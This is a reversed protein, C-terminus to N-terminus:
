LGFDFGSVGDAIPTKGGNVDGLYLNDDEFALFRETDLWRISEFGTMDMKTPPSGMVDGLFAQDPHEEAYVFHKSDPLWGYARIKAASEGYPRTAGSSDMLFLSEKEDSLKAVYIVYGGDPSIFPLSEAPSALSFKGLSANTGNTMVFLFEAQGKESSPPIVTKFGTSDSSWVIEPYFGDPVAPYTMVTTTTANPLDIVDIHDKTSVALLSGNPAFWLAGGEEKQTVLLRADTGDMRITWVELGRMFALLQSDSSLRATSMDGTGTLMVNDSAETWSWLNGERLYVVQLGPPTSVTQEVVVTAEVTASEVVSPIPEPVPSAQIAAAPQPTTPPAKISCASIAVIFTLLIISLAKSMQLNALVVPKSSSLRSHKKIINEIYIPM